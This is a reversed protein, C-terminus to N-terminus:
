VTWSVRPKIIAPQRCLEWVHKFWVPYLEEMEAELSTHPKNTAATTPYLHEFKALTFNDTASVQWLPPVYSSSETFVPIQAQLKGGRQARCCNSGGKQDGATAIPSALCLSLALDEQRQLDPLGYQSSSNTPFLKCCRAIFQSKTM